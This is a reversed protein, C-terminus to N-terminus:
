RDSTILIFITILHLALNYLYYLPQYFRLMPSGFDLSLPGFVNDRAEVTQPFLYGVLLHHLNDGGANIVPEFPKLIIWYSAFVTVSAALPFLWHAREWLWVLAMRKRHRARTAKVKPNSSETIETGQTLM